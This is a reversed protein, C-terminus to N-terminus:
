TLTLGGAKCTKIMFARPHETKGKYSTGTCRMSRTLLPSSLHNRGPKIGHKCCYFVDWLLSAVWGHGHAMM